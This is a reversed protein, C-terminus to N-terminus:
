HDSYHHNHGGTRIVAGPQRQTPLAMSVGANLVRGAFKCAGVTLDVAGVAAKYALEKDKNASPLGYPYPNAPVGGRSVNEMMQQVQVRHSQNPFLGFFAAYNMPDTFKRNFAIVQIAQIKTSNFAICQVVPLSSQCTSPTMKAISALLGKMKDDDTPGFDRMIDAVQGPFFCGQALSVARAKDDTFLHRGIEDRVRKFSHPDM